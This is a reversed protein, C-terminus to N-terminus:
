KGWNESFTAILTRQTVANNGGTRYVRVVDGIDQEHSIDVWVGVDSGRIHASIGSAKTGAGTIEGRHGQTTALFHAM